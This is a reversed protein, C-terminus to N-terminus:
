LEEEVEENGRQQGRLRKDQTKTCRAAMKLSRRRKLGTTAASRSVDGVQWTPRRLQPVDDKTSGGVEEAVDLVEDEDLISPAKVLSLRPHQCISRSALVLRYHCFTESLGVFELDAMAPGSGRSFADFFSAREKKHHTKADNERQSDWYSVRDHAQSLLTEDDDSNSSSTAQQAHNQLQQERLLEEAEEMADEFEDEPLASQDVDHRLSRPIRTVLGESGVLPSSFYRQKKQFVRLMKQGTTRTQVLELKNNGSRDRLKMEQAIEHLEGRASTNNGGADLAEDDSDAGAEEDDVDVFAEEDEDYGAVQVNTARIDAEDDFVIQGGSVEVGIREEGTSEGGFVSDGRKTAKEWKGLQDLYTRDERRRNGEEGDEDNNSRDDSGDDDDGDGSEGSSESDQPDPPCLIFVETTRPRQTEDCSTGDQLRLWVAHLDEADHWAAVSRKVEELSLPGNDSVGTERDFTGDDEEDDLELLAMGNKNEALSRLRRRAREARRRLSSLVGGADGGASGSSPSSGAPLHNQVQLGLLLNKPFPVIRLLPVHLARLHDSLHVPAFRMDTTAINAVEWWAKEEQSQQGRSALLTQKLPNVNLLRGAHWQKDHFFEVLQSNRVDYYTATSSTGDASESDEGTVSLGFRRTSAGPTKSSSNGGDAVEEGQEVFHEHQSTSTGSWTSTARSGLYVHLDTVSFGLALLLTRLVKLKTIVQTADASAYEELEAQKRRLFASWQATDHEHRPPPIRSGIAGVSDGVGGRGGNSFASGDGGHGHDVHKLWDEARMRRLHKEKKKESLRVRSKVGSRIKNVYNHKTKGSSTTTGGPKQHAPQSQQKRSSTTEQHLVEQEEPPVLDKGGNEQDALFKVWREAGLVAKGLASVRLQLEKRLPHVLGRVGAIGVSYGLSYAPDATVKTGGQLDTRHYQRFAHPYCFEYQWWGHNAILCKGYNGFLLSSLLLGEGLTRKVAARISFAAANTSASTLSDPSSAGGHTSESKTSASETGGANKNAEKSRVDSESGTGSKGPKEPLLLPGEAGSLIWQVRRWSVRAEFITNEFLSFLESTLWEVGDRVLNWGFEFVTEISGLIATLSYGLTSNKFVEQIWSSAKSSSTRTGDHRDATTDDTTSTRTDDATSRSKERRRVIKKIEQQEEHSIGGEERWWRDLFALAADLSEFEAGEFQTNMAGSQDQHHVGVYRELARAETQKPSCLLPSHLWINYVHAPKEVIGMGGNAEGCTM